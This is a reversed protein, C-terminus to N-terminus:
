IVRNVELNETSSSSAKPCEEGKVGKLDSRKGGIVFLCSQAARCRWRCLGPLDCNQAQSGTKKPSILRGGLFSLYLQRCRTLSREITAFHSPSGGLAQDRGWVRLGLSKDGPCYLVSQFRPAPPDLIMAHPTGLFIQQSKPQCVPSNIHGLLCVLKNGMHLKSM